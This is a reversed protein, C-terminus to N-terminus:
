SNKQTYFLIDNEDVYILDAIYRMVELYEEDSQILVGDRNLNSIVISRMTNTTWRLFSERDNKPNKFHRISFDYFWSTKIREKNIM